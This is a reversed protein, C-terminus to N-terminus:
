NNVQNIAGKLKKKDVWIIIAEKHMNEAPSQFKSELYQDKGKGKVSMNCNGHTMLQFQMDGLDIVNILDKITAVTIVRIAM